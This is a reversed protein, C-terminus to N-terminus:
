CYTSHFQSKCDKKIFKRWSITVAKYGVAEFHLVKGCMDPVIYLLYDHAYYLDNRKTGIISNIISGETFGWTVKPMPFGCITYKLHSENTNDAMCLKPPGAM